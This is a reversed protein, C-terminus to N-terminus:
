LKSALPKFTHKIIETIRMAAKGDSSPNTALSMAKYAEADTLLREVEEVLKETSAGCLVASGSEVAEIHESKERLVLIPLHFASAEEQLGESDTMLLWAQDMATIMQPYSLPPTLHVRELDALANSIVEKVVLNSHTPLLFELEPRTNHLTQIAACIHGLGSDPSEKRHLTVLVLKKFKDLKVPLAAAQLRHRMQAFLAADIVTNGVLHTATKGELQLTQLARETPAFYLQAIQEIAARNVEEPFPSYLDNPRLGAEAHCVPIGNYYAALAGIFASTTGGQVLVVDPKDEQFQKELALLLKSTFVALSQGEAMVKLITHIELSFFEPLGNLLDTHQDTLIIRPDVGPYNRMIRAVPALKIFEQRSGIILDVKM